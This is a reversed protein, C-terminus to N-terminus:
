APRNKSWTSSNTLTLEVPAPAADDKSSPENAKQEKLQKHYYADHICFAYSSLKITLVMLPATFDPEWSMYATIMVYIHSAVMYGVNFVFAAIYSWTIPLFKLMLYTVIACVILFLTQSGYIFWMIQLGFFISVWSRAARPVKYIFFRFCLGLPLSLLLGMIFRAQIPGFGLVEGAFKAVPDGVISLVNLYRLYEGINEM